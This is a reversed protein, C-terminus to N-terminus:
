EKFAKVGGDSGFLYVHGKHVAWLDANGTTPAGMRQCYPGIEYQAPDKEFVAKTEQSSFIYKFRGRVVAIDEKGQVEKGQLLMVIDLGEIPIVPGSSQQQARPPMSWVAILAMAAVGVFLKRM